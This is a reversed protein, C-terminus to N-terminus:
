KKPFVAFTRFGNRPIDPAVIGETPIGIQNGTLDTEVVEADFATTLRVRRNCHTNHLRITFTGDPRAYAASLRIGDADASLLQRTEPRGTGGCVLAQLPECFRDTEDSLAEAGGSGAHPVLAFRIETPRDITYDRGWLGPGSYQVTLATPYGPGHVYSTTHDSILGLGRTAESDTVDIWNLIVNHRIESWRNFFTSAQQSECVDFPADKWLHPQDFSTPLLLCLKYRDDCFARRDDNWHEERYEGIGPNGQWDIRLSCDIRNSGRVLTYTQRFPNGAIEGELTISEGLPTRNLDAIRARTETSSRFNGEDYFFGRLEGLSFLATDSPAFEVGPANILQMSSITGGRNLNFTLRIRDNGIAPNTDDSPTHSAGAFDESGADVNIAYTTFGFPPVDAMFRIADPSTHECPTRLGDPGTLTIAGDTQWLEGPLRVEVTERRPIMTTNFVKVMLTDGPSTMDAARAIEERATTIASSTWLDIADAWTGFDHLTNYPVIWSDHHQALMLQRWAEDMQTFYISDPQGYGGLAAIARLKEAMVLANEAERVERAIRQMVQSGWMLNVRIDEQTFLHSQAPTSPSVMSIYDTWLVYQSRTRNKGLWPGNRWGADQYCMGIPNRIGAAECASLYGPDNRWATTQWVSGKELGECGYRPVATIETGDPGILTVTEGGFAATYGGWCTDPCKLSMYSFGFGKLIAPLCSTFCPEEVAYTHFAIGPFHRRLSGIGYSFQRIISEGQINYLYPQAYTPNTYEMRGQNLLAAFDQFAGPTRICVTDWTEPEIELGIKWDPHKTLEDVIFQTKWEIPYHGYIGGHYGDAFYNKGTVNVAVAFIIGAAIGAGKFRSNTPRNCDTM